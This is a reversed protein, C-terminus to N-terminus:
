NIKKEKKGFVKYLYIKKYKNDRKYQCFSLKIVDEKLKYFM